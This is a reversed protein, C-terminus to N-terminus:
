TAAGSQTRVINAVYAAHRRLSRLGYGGDDVTLKDQSAVISHRQGM